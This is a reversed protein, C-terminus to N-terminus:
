LLSFILVGIYAVTSVNQRSDFNRNVKVAFGTEMSSEAETNTWGCLVSHVNKYYRQLVLAM